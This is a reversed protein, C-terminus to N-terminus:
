VFSCSKLHRFSSTPTLINTVLITDNKALWKDPPPLTKCSSIQHENLIHDKTLDQRSWVSDQPLQIRSMNLLLSNTNVPPTRIGDVSNRGFCSWKPLLRKFMERFKKNLFAYLVPNICSNWSGLLQAFPLFTELLSEQTETKNKTFRMGTVLIYLPLWSSLYTISVISLRKRVCHKTRSQILKVDDWCATVSPVIRRSVKWWICANSCLIVILPIVYYCILNVFLYYMNGYIESKWNEVCYSLGDEPMTVVDFILAWPLTFLLATIWIFAICCVVQSRTLGIRHKLPQYVAKCRFNCFYNM